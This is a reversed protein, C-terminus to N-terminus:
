NPYNNKVIAIADDLSPPKGVGPSGLLGQRVMAGLLAVQVGEDQIEMSIGLRNILPGGVGPSPLGVKMDSFHVPYVSHMNSIKWDAAYSGEGKRTRVLTKDGVPVREESSGGLILVVREGARQGSRAAEILDATLDEGFTPAFEFALAEVHKGFGLKALLALTFALASPNSSRTTAALVDAYDLLRINDPDGHFAPVDSVAVVRLEKLSLRKLTQKNRAHLVLAKARSFFYIDLWDSRDIPGWPRTQQSVERMRNQLLRVWEPDLPSTEQEIKVFQEHFAEEAPEFESKLEALQSDIQTTTSTNFDLDAAILRMMETRARPTPSVHLVPPPPPPNKEYALFEALFITRKIARLVGRVNASYEQIQSKDSLLSPYTLEMPGAGANYRYNGACALFSSYSPSIPILRLENGLNELNLHDETFLRIAADVREMEKIQAEAYAIQGPELPAPQMAASQGATEPRVNPVQLPNANFDFLWHWEEGVRQLIPKDPLIEVLDAWEPPLIKNAIRGRLRNKFSDPDSLLNAMQEIASYLTGFDAESLEPPSDGEDSHISNNPTANSLPDEDVM